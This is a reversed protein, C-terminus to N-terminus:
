KMRGMGKGGGRGLGRGQGPGGRGLGRGLDTELVTESARTGYGSGSVTEGKIYPVSFVQETKESGCNPCKVDRDLESLHRFVEFVKGCEKCEYDYTPM